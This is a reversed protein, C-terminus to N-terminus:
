IEKRKLVWTAALHALLIYSACYLLVLLYKDLPFDFSSYEIISIKLRSIPPSLAYGVQGIVMFPLKVIMGIDASSAKQAWEFMFRENSLFFMLFVAVPRNTLLVLFSGLALFCGYLPLLQLVYGIILFGPQGGRMAAFLNLLVAMLLAGGALYSFTGLFHGFLVSITRVPKTLNMRLTGSALEDPIITIALWISGFLCFVNTILFLGTSTSLLVRFPINRASRSQALFAVVVIVAIAIIPFLYHSRLMRKLTQRAILVSTM